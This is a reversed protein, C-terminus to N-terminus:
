NRTYYIAYKKNDEDIIYIGSTTACFITNGGRMATGETIYIDTLKINEKFIGSGTTYTETPEAWDCLMTDIRNLSQAGSTTTIYYGSNKTLFCKTTNACLTHSHIHPNSKFNLYDVGSKTTILLRKGHGHIYTINKHTLNINTEIPESECGDLEKKYLGETTGIYLLNDDGWVTNTRGLKSYFCKSKDEFFVELGITSATYTYEKYNYVQTIFNDKFPIAESVYFSGLDSSVTGSATISVKYNNIPLDIFVPQTKDVFVSPINSNIYNTHGISKRIKDGPGYFTDSSKFVIPGYVNCIGSNITATSYFLPYFSSM